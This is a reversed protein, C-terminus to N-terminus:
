RALEKETTSPLGRFRFIRKAAEGVKRCKRASRINVVLPVAIRGLTRLFMRSVLRITRGSKSTFRTHLRAGFRAMIREFVLPCLIEFAVDWVKRFRESTEEELEEQIPTSDISALIAVQVWDQEPDHGYILAVATALRALVLWRASATREKADDGAITGNETLLAAVHDLESRAFMVRKMDRILAGVRADTDDLGSHADSLARASIVNPGGELAIQLVRRMWAAYNENNKDGRVM